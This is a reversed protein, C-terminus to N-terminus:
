DVMINYAGKIIIKDVNPNEIVEVYDKTIRGEQLHIKQFLYSSDTEQELSLIYSQDDAQIVADVPLASVTDSSLIIEGEVYQNNIYKNLYEAEISAYCEISKSDPDVTKGVFDLNAFAIEQLNGSAHFEVKQGKHVSAIDKEFVILQLRLQENDVISTLDEQQDTYEGVVAKIDTIFGKIPATITYSTYLSGKAIRDVNLGINELKMKIANNMALESQYASQATVFEKETGINEKYLLSVRNFDVKLQNLRASSEAFEKQLDIFPNGGIVFLPDGKKVEQGVNVKIQQVIGEVPLGVKAWGNTSPKIYGSFYLKAPFAIQAITGLEMQEAEFQQKSIEILNNDTSEEETKTHNCSSIFLSILLIYATAKM